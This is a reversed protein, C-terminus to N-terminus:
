VPNMDKVELGATSRKRNAPKTREDRQLNQGMEQRDWFFERDVIKEAGRRLKPARYGYAHRQRWQHFLKEKAGEQIRVPPRSPKGIATTKVREGAAYVTRLQHEGPSWDQYNKRTPSTSVITRALVFETAALTRM